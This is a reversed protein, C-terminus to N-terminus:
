LTSTLANEACSEAFAAAASAWRASTRDTWGTEITWFSRLVLTGNMPAFWTHLLKPTRPWPMRTAITSVPM